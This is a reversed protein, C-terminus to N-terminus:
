SPLILQGKGGDPLTRSKVRGRLKVSGGKGQSVTVNRRERGEASLNKELALLVKALKTLEVNVTEDM